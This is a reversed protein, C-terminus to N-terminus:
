EAEAPQQQEVPEKEMRQQLLQLARKGKRETSKESSEYQPWIRYAVIGGCLLVILENMFNVTPISYGLVFLMAVVSMFALFGTVEKEKLDIKRNYFIKAVLGGFFFTLWLVTPRHDRIVWSFTPWDRKELMVLVIDIFIMIGLMGSIVHKAIRIKRIHTQLFTNM